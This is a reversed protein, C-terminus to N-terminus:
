SREENANLNKASVQSPQATGVTLRTNQRQVAIGLCCCWKTAEVHTGHGWPNGGGGKDQHAPLCVM